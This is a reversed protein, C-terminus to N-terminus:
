PLALGYKHNFYNYVNSVQGANHVVNYLLIEAVYVVLTTLNFTIMQCYSDADQTPGAADSDRNVGDVDLTLNVGDHRSLIVWTNNTTDVTYNSVIPAGDNTATQIHDNRIVVSFMNYQAAFLSVDSGTPGGVRTVVYCSKRDFFGGLIVSIRTGVRLYEDGSGDLLIAPKGNIIGTALAPRNGATAQIMDYGNGSQDAAVYIPDGNGALITKAADTYTKAADIWLCLNALETLGTPGGANIMMMDEPTMDM